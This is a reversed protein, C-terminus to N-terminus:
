PSAIVSRSASLGHPYVWRTLVASGRHATCVQPKLSSTSPSAGLTKNLSAKGFKSQKSKKKSGSGGFGDAIDFNYPDDGGGDGGSAFM